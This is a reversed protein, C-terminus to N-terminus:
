RVGAIVGTMAFVALVTSVMLVVIMGPTISGQRAKDTQLRTQKM